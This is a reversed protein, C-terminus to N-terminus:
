LAARSCSTGEIAAVQCFYDGAQCFANCDGFACCGTCDSNMCKPNADAKAQECLTSRRLGVAYAEGWYKEGACVVRFAGSGSGTGDPPPTVTVDGPDGGPDCDMICDSKPSRPKRLVNRMPFRSEIESLADGIVELEFERSVFDAEDLDTKAVFLRPGRRERAVNRGDSFTIEFAQATSSLVFPEGFAPNWHARVGGDATWEVVITALSESDRLVSVDIQPGKREWQLHTAGFEVLPPNTEPTLIVQDAHGSFAFLFIVMFVAPLRMHFLGRFTFKPRSRMTAMSVSLTLAPIGDVGPKEYSIGLFSM